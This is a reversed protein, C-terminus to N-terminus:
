EPFTQIRVVESNGCVYRFPSLLRREGPRLNKVEVTYAIGGLFVGSDRNRTKYCIQVLPVRDSGNNVVAMTVGGADEVTIGGTHEPYEGRSWGYCRDPLTEPLVQCDKELVLVKEGPPLVYLEFVLTTEGWQLVVAGCSVFEGGTNEVLLAATNVVAAATGAEWFPGEYPMLGLALLPTDEVVMPFAAAADGERGPHPRLLLCQCGVTIGFLLLSICGFSVSLVALLWKRM